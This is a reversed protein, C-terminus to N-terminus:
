GVVCGVEFARGSTGPSDVEVFPPRGHDLWGARQFDRWGMKFAFGDNVDPLRRGFLNSEIGLALAVLPRQDLTSLAQSPGLSANDHQIRIQPLRRGAFFAAIVKRLQDCMYGQAM